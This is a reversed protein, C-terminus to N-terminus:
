SGAGVPSAHRARRSSVFVVDVDFSSGTALLLLPVRPRRPGRLGGRRSPANLPVPTWVSSGRSRPAISSGPVIVTLSSALQEADVRRVDDALQDLAPDERGDVLEDVAVGRREDRALEAVLHGLGLGGRDTGVLGVALDGLRGLFDQELLVIRREELRAGRDHGDHAVDVVALGAQEVRDPRGLHGGPLPTADGLVDTRLSTVWSPLRTTKRSVGPWSANVAIRARPALTVSM